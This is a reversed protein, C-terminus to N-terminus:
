VIRVRGGLVVLFDYLHQEIEGVVTITQREQKLTKNIQEVLRPNRTDFYGAWGQDTVFDVRFTRNRNLSWNGVKSMRTVTIEFSRRMGVDPPPTVTGTAEAREQVELADAFRVLDDIVQSPMSDKLIGVLVRDRLDDDDNLQEFAWWLRPNAQAWEQAEEIFEDRM